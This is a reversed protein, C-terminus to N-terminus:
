REYPAFTATSMKHANLEALEGPTYADSGTLHAQVFTAITARADRAGQVLDADGSEACDDWLEFVARKRERVDRTQEWDLRADAARASRLARAPRASVAQRDRLARRAHRRPHAAEGVRVSRASAGCSRTPRISAAPSPGSQQWNGKDKFHMTGDPDVHESFTLHEGHYGGGRADPTLEESDRADYLGPLSRRLAGVEEPSARAMWGPDHLKQEVDAIEGAIRESEIPSPERKPLPQPAMTALADLEDDSLGFKPERMTM